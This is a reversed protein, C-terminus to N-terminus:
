KEKLWCNLSSCINNNNNSWVTVKCVKCSKRKVENGITKIVLPTNPVQHTKGWADTNWFKAPQKYWYNHKILRDYLWLFFVKIM